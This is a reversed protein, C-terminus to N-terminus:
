APTLEKEARAFAVSYPVREAQRIQSARNRIKVALTPDGGREQGLTSISKPADALRNRIPTHAPAPPPTPDLAASKLTRLQGLVALASDRNAILQDRWYAETDNTILDKFDELDRNAVKDELAVADALLAEYKQQLGAVLNVLATILEVDTATEPLNLMTKVQQIDVAESSAAGEVLEPRPNTQVPQEM